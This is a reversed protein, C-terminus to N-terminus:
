VLTLSPVEDLSRFVPKGLRRFQEVEADAGPSPGGIGFCADCRSALAGAVPEMITEYADVTGDLEIMPLVLNVAVIPLHGLRAVDLAALNLERLHAQRREKDAGGATYPGSVMIWMSLGGEDDTLPTGRGIHITTGDTAYKWSM